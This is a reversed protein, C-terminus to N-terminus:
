FAELRGGPLPAGGLTCGALDQKQLWMKEVGDIDGTGVLNELKLAVADLDGMDTVDIPTTRRVPGDTSKEGGASGCASVM